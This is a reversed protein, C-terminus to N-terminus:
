AAIPQGNLKRYAYATAIQTVGAALGCTFLNLLVVVIVFLLLQGINDKVLNFSSTISEVPQQQQDLIYFGYFVTFFAVILAGVCFVFLGIFTLIGVLISALAYPGLNDFKFVTGPDPEHGATILLGMRILGMQLIFSIIFGVILLGLSLFLGAFGGVSGVIIGRIVQFVIQVAVIILVIVIVQGIYQVFKNWGYSLATGIDFPGAAAGAGGGAQYGPAQEPPYWKGDSAQWWGPGEPSESV